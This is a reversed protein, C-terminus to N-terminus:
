FTTDSRETINSKKFSNRGHKSLTWRFDCLIHAGLTNLPQTRTCICMGSRILASGPRPTKFRHLWYNWVLGNQMAILGFKWVDRSESLMFKPLLRLILSNVTKWSILTCESQWCFGRNRKAIARILSNSSYKERLRGGIETAEWALYSERVLGILISRIRLQWKLMRSKASERTNWYHRCFKLWWSDKRLM